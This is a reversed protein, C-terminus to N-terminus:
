RGDGHFAYDAPKRKATHPLRHWMYLLTEQHMAEHELIAFVAEAGDLLPHGPRDLDERELADVVRRDAEEVFARVTERSPWTDPAGHSSTEEPDIGRAFLRELRADVSPQGLAKKELTNFSFAPLHGDYFVIPHRLSIPTAYYADDSILAFLQRSRERNRRYWSLFASRDALSSVSRSSSM